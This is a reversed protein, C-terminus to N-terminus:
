PPASPDFLRSPSTSSARPSRGPTAAAPCRPAPSLRGRRPSGRRSPSARAAAGEPPAFAVQARGLAREHPELAPPRPPFLHCRVCRAAPQGGKRPTAAALRVSPVQPCIDAGRPRRPCGHASDSGCIQLLMAAGPSNLASFSPGYWPCRAPSPWLPM